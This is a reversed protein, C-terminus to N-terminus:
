AKQVSFGFKTHPRQCCRRPWPPSYNLTKKAVHVPFHNEALTLCFPFKTDDTRIYTDSRVVRMRARIPAFASAPHGFIASHLRPCSSVFSSPRKLLESGAERGGGRERWKERLLNCLRSCTPRGSRSCRQRQSRRACRTTGGTRGPTARILIGSVPLASPVSACPSRCSSFLCRRKADDATERM